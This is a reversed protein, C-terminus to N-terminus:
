NFSVRKFITNVETSLNKVSDRVEDMTDDIAIDTSYLETEGRNAETEILAKIVKQNHSLLDLEIGSNSIEGDNLSKDNNDDKCENPDIEYMASKNGEWFSNSRLNIDNSKLNTQPQASELPLIESDLTSNLTSQVTMDSTSGFSGDNEYSNSSDYEDSSSSKNLEDVKRQLNILEPYIENKITESLLTYLKKHHEYNTLIHNRSAEEDKFSNLSPTRGSYIGYRKEATPLNRSKWNQNDITSSQIADISNSHLEIDSSSVLKLLLEELNLAKAPTSSRSGSSNRSIETLHKSILNNQPKKEFRLFSSSPREDYSELASNEYRSVLNLQRLNSLLCEDISVENSNMHNLQLTSEAIPYDSVNDDGEQIRSLTGILRDSGM